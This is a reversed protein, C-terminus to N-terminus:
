ARTVASYGAPPDYGLYTKGLNGFHRWSVGGHAAAQHADRLKRELPHNRRSATTGATNHIVGVIHRATQAAHTSSLLGKRILPWEPMERGGKLPGLNREIQDQTEMVFARAALLTAEAEALRIWAEPQDKLLSGSMWPTKTVALEVFSDIAGRCIGLAVAAKNYPVQTPNRLTPNEWLKTSALAGQPLLHEPPIYGNAVRVDHSGSGRLGAMDWTDVIEFEGRPIMWSADAPKGTEEDIVEGAPNLVLNWTANHCGSAFAGQYSMRWGAGERRAKRDYPTNPTGLGSSILVEWDDFIRHAHAPDMQRLVLANIESNIQVCWGVSGDIASVAEIIEIQDRANLNEGGLELPIPFRYLGAEAMMEAAWAPLHRIEQAEDGAAALKDKIAAIRQLPPTAKLATMREILEPRVM